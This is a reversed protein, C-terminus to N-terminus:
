MGSRGERYGYAIYHRYYAALDNGFAARLDSYRAKYRFVNFNLSGQRGEAMGNSVFHGLAAGDDGGFASRLDSYASLYYSADFVLEYDVGGYSTATNKLQSGNWAAVEGKMWINRYTLFSLLSQLNLDYTAFAPVCNGFNSLGWLAQDMKQSASIQNRYYKLSNLYTGKSSADGLVINSIYSSFTSQYYSKVANQYESGRPYLTRYMVTYLGAYNYGLTLDRIGFGTDFDWNPGSYIKTSKGLKSADSASYVYYFTSSCLYDINKSYENLIYCKALSDLDFNRSVNTGSELSEMAAEVRKAIYEVESKSANEPGKLVFVGQSTQFWARESAYYASDMEVLYGGSIDAPNTIGTVYQYAYSKGNYEYSSQATPLSDLDVTKGTADQNASDLDTVNVRSSGVEVKSALLYSGRYQGDYYLDVPESDVSCDIGMELALKYALTDHLLTSDGANALLVWKKSADGNGLLDTKKGFKIQYPKKSSAAWTSNGRGKITATQNKAKGNVVSGSADCLIATVGAESSHDASSDVYDRGQGVPDDSTVYLSAVSASKMVNLRVPTASSSAKAYIVYGGSGKSAVSDLDIKAGVSVAKYDGKETGSILAQSASPVVYCGFLYSSVDASSPLFITQVGSVVKSEIREGGSETYFGDIASTTPLSARELSFAQAATSNSSWAQCNTGDAFRQGKVDLVRGTAKSAFSTGYPNDVPKWLQSDSPEGSSSVVGVDGGSTVCVYKGTLSSAITYFGDTGYPEVDFVQATTGNRSYVQVNAGDQTSGGAVDLCYSRAASCVINYLGSYRTSADDPSPASALSWRQASSGNADWAWVNTGDASRGQCVDLVKGSLASVFTYTGDGDDLVDWCQAWTGNSPWQWVNAGRDMSGDAVDLDLGSGGNSIHYYGTSSDYSLLFTQAATGNTSWIQVNAGAHSSGAAVDLAKGKSLASSVVYAGNPVAASVQSVDWKQANTGNCGWIQIPVGVSANGGPIDLAFRTGDSAVLKSLISYTGDQNRSVIWKQADSGNAEWQQVIAANAASGNRVDLVLGSAISKITCYGDSGVSVFFRQARTRNSSWLHMGLGPTVVGGPVDVDFGGRSSTLYYCGSGIDSSTPVSSALLPTAPTAATTAPVTAATTAPVTAATTAPVTAATTAPAADSTTAPAADSTPVAASTTASVAADDTSPEAAESESASPVAAGNSLPQAAKAIGSPFLAILLAAFAM